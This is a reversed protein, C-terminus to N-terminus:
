GGVPPRSRRTLTSRLRLNFFANPSSPSVPLIDYGERRAAEIFAGNPIYTAEEVKLRDSSENHVRRDDSRTWEEVVHKWHYSSYWLQIRRTHEAFRRIWAVCVGVQEETPPGYDDRVGIAPCLGVATIVLSSTM